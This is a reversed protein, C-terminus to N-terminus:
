SALAGTQMLAARVLPHHSALLPVLPLRLRDQLRGMMALMAKVPIPNSEIFAAHVVPAMQADLRRAKALDGRSMATCLASVLAPVVNSIVSIVGDGGHAMVGLTLPDDGSLVAFHEPRERIIQAIQVLNGSAEKVAVFRPDAALELCSRAELNVATRGPVNYIVIPLDCADAIARFHAIMARQPPKNYMPTVHLVHSAGIAKMERSTAIARQTDNSGAGAIVPVRGDVQEVTIEVVRRHEAPALTVAEGTSGCPIVMHVGEGVQWEVFARLAGEDISGDVTFPTVLATGCGSLRQAM